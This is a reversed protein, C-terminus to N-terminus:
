KLRNDIATVNPKFRDGSKKLHDRLVRLECRALWDLTGARFWYRSGLWSVQPCYVRRFRIAQDPYRSDDLPFLVADVIPWSSKGLIGFHECFVVAVPLEFYALALLFAVVCRRKWPNQASWWRWPAFWEM